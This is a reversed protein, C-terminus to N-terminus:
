RVQVRSGTAYEVRSIGESSVQFYVLVYSDEPMSLEQDLGVETLPFLSISACLWLLFLLVVVARVWRYGLLYPAYFRKFVNSLFNEQQESGADEASSRFCCALEFRNGQLVTWVVDCVTAAYYSNETLIKIANPAHFHILWELASNFGM